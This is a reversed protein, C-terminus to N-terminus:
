LAEYDHLPNHYLNEQGALPNNFVTAETAGAVGTSVAVAGGGFVAAGLLGLIVILAILGAGLAAGIIVNNSKGINACNFGTFGKVCACAGTQNNKRAFDANTGCSLDYKTSDNGFKDFNEKALKDCATLNLCKGNMTCNDPCTPPIVVVPPTCSFFTRNPDCKPPDVCKGDTLLNTDNLRPCWACTLGAFSALSRCQSCTFAGLTECTPPPPTPVTECASGSANSGADCVCKGDVCQGRNNCFQGNNFCPADTPPAVPPLACNVGTFNNECICTDNVCLGNGSCQTGNNDCPLNTPPATPEGTPQFTPPETPEPTPASSPRSSPATTPEETPLETPARSPVGTPALTPTETPKETPQTTPRDTPALTPTETPEVTPAVSPKSTPALTPNETPEVTPQNSPKDTPALTPIETPQLTPNETPKSTPADSPADSPALSPASSPKSSPANTPNETPQITPASSPKDSPSDSPQSTPQVTPGVTPRLTPETTPSDTPESTPSVTPSRSPKGTPSMTPEETPEETPSRTPRKSPAGTPQETPELTPPQNTITPAATTPPPLTPATTPAVSPEATPGPTPKKTPETTPSATPEETPGITPTRTPRTSPAPTPEETPEASPVRTPRVSPGKTPGDTPSETPGPTPRKTPGITPPETPEFSPASSPKRTPGPTPRDTPEDTPASSPKRTPGPTPRDTPEDTPAVSPKKTPGLTPQDTPQDTPANTPGKTPGKTPQVTPQETPAVTPAKTPGKTPALSPADSPADTPSRSPRNTPALSPSETPRFTPPSTPGATPQTTPKKTIIECCDTENQLRGGDLPKCTCKGIVGNCVGNGCCDNPCKIFITPQVTPPVVCCSTTNAINVGTDCTCIGNTSNCKGHGCCNMPCPVIVRLCNCTIRFGFKDVKDDAIQFGTGTRTYTLFPEQSLKDIPIKVLKYPQVPDPSPPPAVLPVCFWTWRGDGPLPKLDCKGCKVGNKTVFGADCSVLLNVCGQGVDGGAGNNDGDHVMIQLRYAREDNLGLSDLNWAIQSGYGPRPEDYAKPNITAYAPVPDSGVGYRFTGNQIFVNPPFPFCCPLSNADRVNVNSIQYFYGAVATKLITKTAYGWVGCVKTPLYDKGGYQWDGLRSSPNDTIDTIFLRPGLPRQCFLGGATCGNAPGSTDLSHQVNNPDQSPFGLATGGAVNICTATTGPNTNTPHNTKVGNVDVVTGLGLTVPWEDYYYLSLLTNDPNVAYAFLVQDENFTTPTRSTAPAGGPYGLVCSNEITRKSHGSDCNPCVCQSLDIYGYTDYSSGVHMLWVWQYSPTYGTVSFKFVETNDRNSGTKMFNVADTQATFRLFQTPPAAGLGVLTVEPGAVSATWKYNKLQVTGADPSVLGLVDRATKGPLPPANLNFDVYFVRNSCLNSVLFVFDTRTTALNGV